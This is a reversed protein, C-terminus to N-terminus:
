DRKLARTASNKPNKKMRKLPLRNKLMESLIKVINTEDLNAAQVYDDTSLSVLIKRFFMLGEVHLLTMLSLM